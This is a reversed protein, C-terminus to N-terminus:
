RTYYNKAWKVIKNTLHVSSEVLERILPEEMLDRYLSDFVSKYLNRVEADEELKSALYYNVCEGVINWPTEDSILSRKKKYSHIVNKLRDMTDLPLTFYIFKAVDGGMLGIKSRELPGSLFFYATKSFPPKLYIERKMVVEYMGEPLQSSDTVILKRGRAKVKLKRRKGKYEFEIPPVDEPRNKTRATVKVSGFITRRSIIM